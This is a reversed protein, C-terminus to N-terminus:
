AVVESADSPHRTEHTVDGDAAGGHVAVRDTRPENQHEDAHRLEHDDEVRRDHVDRERRDLAVELHRVGVQLPDDVRVREDETAEQQEAPACAVEDAALPDEEGADHDERDRRQQICERRAGLHQDDAAAELPQARREDRRRRERDDRRGEGLTRLPRLRHRDPGRDCDAAASDPQQEAADEDVGKRPWPDEVDVNWHPDGDEDGREPVHRLRLVLARVLREVERTRHRHGGPEQDEDVRDDLRLLLAPPRRVRQDDAPDREQEERREEHDLAARDLRQHPQADEAHPRHPGRVDRHEENGGPQKRHEEEVRQVQLSHEAAGSSAPSAKRGKVTPIMM